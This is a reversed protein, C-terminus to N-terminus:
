RTIKLVRPKEGPFLHQSDCHFGQAALTTEFKRVHARGPDIFIAAGDSQLSQNLFHCLEAACGPEYMVDSGIILDYKETTFEDQWSLKQFPVPSLHNLRANEILLQEAFPNYDSATMNLGRAHCVLSALGLGCGVELIKQSTEIPMKAVLEALIIGSPWIVGCLPWLSEPVDAGWITPGITLQEDLTPFQIRDAFRRIVWTRDHIKVESTVYTLTLPYPKLLFLVTPSHCTRTNSAVM